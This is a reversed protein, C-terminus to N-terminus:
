RMLSVVRQDLSTRAATEAYAVAGVLALRIQPGGARADNRPQPQHLTSRAGPPTVERDGTRKANGIAASAGQM